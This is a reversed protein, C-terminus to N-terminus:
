ETGPPAHVSSQHLPEVYHEAFLRAVLEGRSSVGVKEFTSKVYDPVTHPSLCLGSLERAWTQVDGWSREYPALLSFEVRVTGGCICGVRPVRVRVSAPVTLLTREYSGARWLQTTWGQQWRGCVV